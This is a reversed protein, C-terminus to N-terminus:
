TSSCINSIQKEHMIMGWWLCNVCFFYSSLGTESSVHMRTQFRLSKSDLLNVNRETRKWALETMEVKKKKFRGSTTFVQGSIFSRGPPLKWHYFPLRQFRENIALGKVLTVVLLKHFLLIKAELQHCGAERCCQLFRISSDYKM